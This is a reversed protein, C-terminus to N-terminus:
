IQSHATPGEMSDNNTLSLNFTRMDSVIPLMNLSENFVLSLSAGIDCCTLWQPLGISYKAYLGCKCAWTAIFVSVRIVMSLNM